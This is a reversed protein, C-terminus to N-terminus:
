IAHFLVLSLGTLVQQRQDILFKASQGRRLHSVLRWALGQLGGGQHVFGKKSKCAAGPFAPLAAGM